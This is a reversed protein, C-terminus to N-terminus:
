YWSISIVEEAALIWIISMRVEPEPGLTGAPPLTPRDVCKTYRDHNCLVQRHWKTSRHTYFHCTKTTKSTQYEPRYSRFTQHLYLSRCLYHPDLLDYSPDLPHEPPPSATPRWNSVSVSLIRPYYVRGIHVCFEANLHFSCTKSAPLSVCFRRRLACFSCGAPIAM